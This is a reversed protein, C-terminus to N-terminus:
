LEINRNSCFKEVRSKQEYTGRKYIDKLKEIFYEDNFAEKDINRSIKYAEAFNELKIYSLYSYANKIKDNIIVQISKAYEGLEYYSKFAYVNIINNRRYINNNYISIIENYLKEKFKKDLMMKFYDHEMSTIIFNIEGRINMDHKYYRHLIEGNTKNFLKEYYELGKNKFSVDKTQESLLYYILSIYFYKKIEINDYMNSLTYIFDNYLSIIIDINANYMFRIIDDNDYGIINEICDIIKNEDYEIKATYYDIIFKIDPIKSEFDNFYKLIDEKSCVNENYEKFKYKIINYVLDPKYSINLIYEFINIGNKYNGIECFCVALNYYIDYKVNDSDLIYLSNSFCELANKYDNEKIFNEGKEMYFKYNYSENHQYYIRLINNSESINFINYEFYKKMNKFAEKEMETNNIDYSFIIYQVAGKIYYFYNNNSEEISEEILMDCYDIAENCYKIIGLNYFCSKSIELLYRIVAITDAYKKNSSIEKPASELLKKINDDYEIDEGKKVKFLNNISNYFTNFYHIDPLEYNGLEYNSLYLYFNDDINNNSM